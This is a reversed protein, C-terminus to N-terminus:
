PEVECRYIPILTTVKGTTVPQYHDLVSTGGLEECSPGTNINGTILAWVLVVILTTCAAALVVLITGILVEFLRSVM